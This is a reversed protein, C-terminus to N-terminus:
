LSDRRDALAFGRLPQNLGRVFAIAQFREGMGSPLILQKAAQVRPLYQEVEGPDTEALLGDLGCAILFQSQSNYGALTLGADVGAEAVASFDVNATIDQLGPLALFDDHARHRFHCILTGRDREPHYYGRESYGYDILLVAGRQLFGALVRFWPGLRLNVESVYGVPFPDLRAQLAELREQLRNSAPQWHECFREGDLGIYCEQWGTESRRFRSVPMADLLENAMVVGNWPPEPPRELWEVRQLLTASRQALTERQRARLEASLELIQYREPLQGLRDLEALVDAAMVGAGAGFELVNGGTVALVEACQAALCRSFLPSIEPATVFDGRAGFKHAGNVYYGAEPAYLALEMFRDFPIAGGATRIADAIVARTRDLQQLQESDLRPSSV